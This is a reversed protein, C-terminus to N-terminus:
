ISFQLLFLSSSESGSSRSNEGRVFDELSFPSVKLSPDVLEDRVFYALISLNIDLLIRFVRNEKHSEFYNINSIIQSSSM